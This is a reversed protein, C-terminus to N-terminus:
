LEDVIILSTDNKMGFYVADEITNLTIDDLNDYSYGNVTKSVTCAAM